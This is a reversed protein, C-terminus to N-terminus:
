ISPSSSRSSEDIVEEETQEIATVSGVESLPSPSIHEVPTHPCEPIAPASPYGCNTCVPFIPIRDEALEEDDSDDGLAAPYPSANRARTLRPESPPVPVTLTTSSAFTVSPAYQPTHPFLRESASDTPLLAPSNPVTPAQSPPVQRDDNSVHPCNRHHHGPLGCYICAIFLNDLEHDSFAWAEHEDRRAQDFREPHWPPPVMADIACINVNRLLREIGFSMMFLILNQRFRVNRDDATYLELLTQRQTEATNGYRLRNSMDITHDFAWLWFQADDRHRLLRTLVPRLSRTSFIALLLQPRQEIPTDQFPIYTILPRRPPPPSLSLNFLQQRTLTPATQTTNTGLTQQRDGAETTTM